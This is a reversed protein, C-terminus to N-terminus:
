KLLISSLPTLIQIVGFVKIRGHRHTSTILSSMDGNWYRLDKGYEKGLRFVQTAKASNSDGLAFTFTGSSESLRATKGIKYDAVWQEPKTLMMVIEEDSQPQGVQLTTMINNSIILQDDSNNQYSGYNGIYYRKNASGTFWQDPNNAHSDSGAATTVAGTYPDVLKITMCCGFEDYHTLTGGDYTLYLGYWKGETLTDSGNFKIWNSAMRGGGFRIQNNEIRMYVEGGDSNGNQNSWRTGWLPHTVNSGESDPLYFLTSVAFADGAELSHIACTNDACNENALLYHGFGGGRDFRVGSRVDSLRGSIANSVVM